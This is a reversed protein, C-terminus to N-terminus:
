SLISGMPDSTLYMGCQPQYGIPFNTENLQTIFAQALAPDVGSTNLIQNINTLNSNKAVRYWWTSGIIVESFNAPLYILADLKGDNLLSQGSEYTINQGNYTSIIHVVDTLNSLVDIFKMSAIASLNTDPNTVGEADDNIITVSFSINGSESSPISITFIFTLIIPSILTVIVLPRNRYFTRLNKLLLAYFHRFIEM